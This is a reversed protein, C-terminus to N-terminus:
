YKYNCQYPSYSLVELINPFDEVIEDDSNLFDEIDIANQIHSGSTLLEISNSVEVCIEDLEAM